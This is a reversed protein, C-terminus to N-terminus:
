SAQMTARQAALRGLIFALKGLLEGRSYPKALFYTQSAPDEIDYEADGYGSTVLLSLQPSRKRLEQGLQQGTRGPLIMDTMVIEIPLECTEYIRMAEIADEAALVSFGAKELINRTADRLFPEDEVLLITRQVPPNSSRAPRAAPFFM